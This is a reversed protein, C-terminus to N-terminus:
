EKFIEFHSLSHCFMNLIYFLIDHKFSVMLEVYEIKLM